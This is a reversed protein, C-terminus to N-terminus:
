SDILMSYTYLYGVPQKNTTATSNGGQVEISSINWVLRIKDLSVWNKMSKM